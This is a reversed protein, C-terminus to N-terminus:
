GTYRRILLIAIKQTATEMSILTFPPCTQLYAGMLLTNSLVDCQAHNRRSLMNSTQITQCHSVAALAFALVSRRQEVTNCFFASPGQPRTISKGGKEATTSWWRDQSICLSFFGGIQGRVEISSLLLLAPSEPLRQSRFRSSPYNTLFPQLTFVFRQDSGFCSHRASLFISSFGAAIFVGKFFFLM